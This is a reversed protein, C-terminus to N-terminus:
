PTDPPTLSLFRVLAQLPATVLHRGPYYLYFGAFAPTWDSLVQVLSGDDIHAQVQHAFVYAIGAGDVAVRTLMEPDNVLLPGSVAVELAKGAKEFEWRYLSGDTPRRYALCRHGHLDEPVRPTGVRQLYSPAAVVKMELPGGIRIAVMDQELREGLRIGADFGQGVIDVLRDDTVVELEIGPYAQLFPGILPALHHIAADRTSNIRLRGAVVGPYARAQDMAADLATLAPAVQELLRTGKETLAISRTTRNLLRTGLREELLKLTQSLASASMGLHAAARRFSGQEVIAVFAKLEVYGSGRM